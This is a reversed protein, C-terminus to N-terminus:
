SGTGNLEADITAADQDPADAKQQHWYYLGAALALLAAVALVIRTTKSM